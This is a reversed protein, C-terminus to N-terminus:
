GLIPPVSLDAEVSHSCRPLLILSKALILYSRQIELKRFEWPM